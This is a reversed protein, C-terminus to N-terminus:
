KKIIRVINELIKTSLPMIKENYREAWIVRGEVHEENIQVLVYDGKKITKGKYIYYLFGKNKISINVLWLFNNDLKNYFYFEGSIINIIEDNLYFFFILEAGKREFTLYSFSFLSEGKKFKHLFSPNKFAFYFGDSFYSSLSALSINLFKAGKDMCTISFYYTNDEEKILQCYLLNRMSFNKEFLYSLDDDENINTLEDFNAHSIKKKYTLFSEHIAKVRFFDYDTFEDLGSYFKVAALTELVIYLNKQICDLISTKKNQVLNFVKTILGLPYCDSNKSSYFDFYTNELYSDISENYFNINKKFRKGDGVLFLNALSLYAIKFGNFTALSYYYFAKNFDYNIFEKKNAYLNGLTYYFLPNNDTKLVNLLIKEELLFNREFLFNKTDLYSCYVYIAFSDGDYVLDLIVDRYKWSYILNGDLIKSNRKDFLINLIEFEENKSFKREMLPLNFNAIAGNIDKLLININNIFNQKDSQVVVDSFKSIYFYVLHDENIFFPDKACNNKNQYFILNKNINFLLYFYHKWDVSELDDADLNLIFDALDSLSIKIEEEWYYREAIVDYSIVSEFSKEFNLISLVDNKSLRHGEGQVFTVKAKSVEFFVNENRIIYSTAKDEEIFYICGEKVKRDCSKICLVIKKDFNNNM